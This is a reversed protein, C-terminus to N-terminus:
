RNSQPGPPQPPIPGAGKSPILSQSETHQALVNLAPAEVGRVRAGRRAAEYMQEFEEASEVAEDNRVQKVTAALHALTHHPQMAASLFALQIGKARKPDLTDQSSRSPTKDTASPTKPPLRGDKRAQELLALAAKKYQKGRPSLEKQERNPPPGPPKEIDRM